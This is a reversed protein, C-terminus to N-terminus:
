TNLELMNCCLNCTIHAILICLFMTYKCTNACFYWLRSFRCQNSFCWLHGKMKIDWRVQRLKGYTGGGTNKDSNRHRHTRAGTHKHTHAQRHTHKRAQTHAHDRGALAQGLLGQHPGDVAAHVRHLLSLRVQAVHSVQGWETVVQHAWHAGVVHVCEIDPNCKVFILYNGPRIKSNENKKKKRFIINPDM